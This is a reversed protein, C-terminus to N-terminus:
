CGFTGGSAAMCANRGLQSGAIDNGAPKVEESAMLTKGPWLCRRVYFTKISAQITDLGRAM